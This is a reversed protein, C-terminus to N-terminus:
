FSVSKLDDITVADLKRITIHYWNKVAWETDSQDINAAIFAWRRSFKGSSPKVLYPHVALIVGNKVYNVDLTYGARSTRTEFTGTAWCVVTIDDFPATCNACTYVYSTVQSRRPGGCAYHYSTDCHACYWDVNPRCKKGCDFFCKHM